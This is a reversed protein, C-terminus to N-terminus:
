EAGLVLWLRNVEEAIPSDANLRDAAAKEWALWRVLNGWSQQGAPAPPASQILAESEPTNLEAWARPSRNLHSTLRQAMATPLIEGALRDAPGRIDAAGPVAGGHGVGEPLPSDPGLEHPAPGRPGTSLQAASMAGLGLASVLCGPGRRVSLM